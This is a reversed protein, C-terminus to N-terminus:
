AEDVAVYGNGCLCEYWPNLDNFNNSYAECRSWLDNGVACISNEGFCFSLDEKRGYLKMLAKGREYEADASVHQLAIFAYTLLTATFRCM